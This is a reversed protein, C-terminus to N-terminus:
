APLRFREPAPTGDLALAAALRGTEPGFKFGHGSCASVVVVNERGPLRDLVFDRSPTTTYLCTTADRPAPELGPLFRSVWGALRALAHPDPRFDRADATTIRGSHHGGVKLGEPSIAPFGYPGSTYDIFVPFRGPAFEPSAPAAFHAWQEQTVTVPLSASATALLDNVWAGAAVIVTGARVTEAGLRLTVGAPDPEIADVRADERLEAGRRVAERALLRVARTAEVYGADPQFLGIWGDPLRFAPFRSAVEDADLLEHPVRAERLSAACAALDPQGPAGVDLGGTAHVVREGSEAELRAWGELAREALRVYDVSEYSKRVIRSSGHSSGRDHGVRFRELLLTRAGRRALELAAASGNLGAGVVAADYTGGM